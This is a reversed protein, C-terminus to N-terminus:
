NNQNIEEYAELFGKECERIRNRMFFAFVRYVVGGIEANSKKVLWEGIFPIKAIAHDPVYKCCGACM